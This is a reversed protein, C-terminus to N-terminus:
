VLHDEVPKQILSLQMSHRTLPELEIRGIAGRADIIRRAHPYNESRTSVM